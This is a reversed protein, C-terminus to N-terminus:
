QFISLRLSFIHPHKSGTSRCTRFAAHTQWRCSCSPSTWWHLAWLQLCFSRWFYSGRPSAAWIWSYLTNLWDHVFTHPCSVQSSETLPSGLPGLMSKTNCTWLCWHVRGSMTWVVTWALRAMRSMFHASQLLIFLLYRFKYHNCKKEKIKLWTSMVLTAAVALDMDELCLCCSFFYLNQLCSPSFM